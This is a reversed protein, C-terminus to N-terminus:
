AKENNFEDSERGEYCLRIPETSLALHEIIAKAEKLRKNFNPFKKLNKSNLSGHVLNNRINKVCRILTKTIHPLDLEKWIVENKEYHQKKDRQSLITPIIGEKKLKNFFEEGIDKNLRDWDAEACNYKPSSKVYGARKLSYELRIFKKLFDLSGPPLDSTKSNDLKCM